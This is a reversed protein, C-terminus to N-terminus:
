YEVLKEFLNPDIILECHGDAFGVVIGDDPWKDYTEYMVVEKSWDSGRHPQIYKIVSPGTPQEPAALIIKLVEDKIGLEKLEFLEQPYQGNHQDCFSACLLNLYMIKTSIKKKNVPWDDNFKKLQYGEPPELSFLEDDLEGDIQISTYMVPSRDKGPWEIQIQVPLGTQPDIWITTIRSKGCSQLIRVKKDYLETNGIDVIAGVSMEILRERLSIDLQRLELLGSNPNVVYDSNKDYLIATKDFPNLELAQRKGYHVLTVRGNFRDNFDSLCVHRERDPEKFMWTQEFVFKEGSERKAEWSENCSFTRARKINDMAAAFVKGSGNTGFQNIVIVATIIIVAAAALKTIPSRIIIRWISTQKAAPAQKTEKISDFLTNKASECLQQDAVKTKMEDAAKLLAVINELETRCLNCESLHKEVDNTQEAGLEGLAFSVLLENIQNHTNM